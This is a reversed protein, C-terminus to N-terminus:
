CLRCDHGHGCPDATDDPSGQALGVYEDDRPGEPAVDEVDGLDFDAPDPASGENRLRRVFDPEEILEIIRLAQAEPASLDVVEGDPFTRVVPRDLAKGVSAVRGLRGDSLAVFRGPPYLGLARTFAALLAPDFAGPDSYLIQFARAPSYPAKYPRRSTLAEFVDCIQILSTARSTQFWPRRSPYGRGDYRLHHGWAAGLAYPSANQSDLLIEAGREPHTAMVRREDEDLRGPKYLIHEPIRGKGVDHYMAAATMEIVAERSAGMRSAVYSTLLSVRLSHQVTFVDFEPREALQMLNDFGFEAADMVTESATRAVNIDISLGDSAADVADEVATAVEMRTPEAVALDFGASTYANRTSTDNVCDWRIDDNPALLEIGDITSLEHLFAENTPVVEAAVLKCALGIMKTVSEPTAAGTFSFGGRQLRRLFTIMTRGRISADALTRGGHVFLSMRMHLEVSPAGAESLALILEDRFRIVAYMTETSKADGQLAADLAASLEVWLTQTRMRSIM